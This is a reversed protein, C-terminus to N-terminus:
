LNPLTAGDKLPKDHLRPRSVLGKAPTWPCLERFSRPKLWILSCFWCESYLRKKKHPSKELIIRNQETMRLKKRPLSAGTSGHIEFGQFLAPPRSVLGDEKYYQCISGPTNRAYLWDLTVWSMAVSVSIVDDWGVLVAHLVWAKWSGNYIISQFESGSSYRFIPGM